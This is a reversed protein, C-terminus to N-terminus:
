YNVGQRELSEYGEIEDLEAKAEILQIQMEEILAELREIKDELEQKRDM